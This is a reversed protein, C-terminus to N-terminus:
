LFTCFYFGRIERRVVHVNLTTLFEVLLGTRPKLPEHVESEDSEAIQRRWSLIIGNM